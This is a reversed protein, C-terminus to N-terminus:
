LRAFAGPDALLWMHGGHAAVERYRAGAVHAFRRCHEVPTLTDGACAVVECAIGRARLAQLQERLDLSRVVRALRFARRPAALAGALPRVLERPSYVGHATQRCFDRLSDRMPKTLPLGAPAILLLREVREPQQLAAVVALAAGMSHGALTFRAPVRELTARLSALHAEFSSARRFSPPEHITWGAGLAPRYFSAAAGYGPVFVSAM